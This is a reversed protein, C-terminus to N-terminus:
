CGEPYGLAKAAELGKSKFTLEQRWRVSSQSKKM